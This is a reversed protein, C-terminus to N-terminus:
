LMWEFFQLGGFIMLMLGVITVGTKLAHRAIEPWEEYRTASYVLSVAIVLPVSYLFDSM